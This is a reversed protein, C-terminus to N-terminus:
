RVHAAASVEAPQRPGKGLGAAVLLQQARRRWVVLRAERQGARANQCKSRACIRNLTIPGGKM